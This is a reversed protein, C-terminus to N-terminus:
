KAVSDAPAEEAKEEGETATDEGETAADEGELADAVAEGAENVADEMSASDVKPQLSSADTIKWAGDILECAVDSESVEGGETTIKVKVTAKTDKVDESVIEISKPMKKKTEEDQAEKITKMTKELSQVALDQSEKPTNTAEVYTKYDGAVMADFAKKVVAGPGNGNGCSVAFLAIAAVAVLGFFKKM